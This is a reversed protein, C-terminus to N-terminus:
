AEDAKKLKRKAPPKTAPKAATVTASTASAAPTAPSAPKAARTRPKPKAPANPAAVASPAGVSASSPALPAANGAGNLARLRETSDAVIAQRAAQKDLLAQTEPGVPPKIVPSVPAADTPTSPAKTPTAANKLPDWKEFKAAADKMATLGLSQQSTVSKFDKAVDKIGSENAAQEMARSFERAMSRMKATFRGLERFMDPLDKPGIVILAVVGVLILESWGIDLM